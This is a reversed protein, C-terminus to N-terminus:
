RRNTKLRGWTTTLKGALTVAQPIGKGEIKLDDIAFVEASSSWMAVVFKGEKFAADEEDFLKKGDVFTQHRQGKAVVKFEFWKKFCEKPKVEINSVGPGPLWMLKGKKMSMWRVGDIGGGACKKFSPHTNYWNAVDQWRYFVGGEHNKGKMFLIKFEFTGDSFVIDKLEMRQAQRGMDKKPVIDGGLGGLGECILVGGEIRWKAKGFIQWDDLQARDEFDYVLALVPLAACALVLVLGLTLLQNLLSRSKIM